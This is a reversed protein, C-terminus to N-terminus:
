LKNVYGFIWFTSSSYFYHFSRSSHHFHSKDSRRGSLRKLRRAASFWFSSCSTTCWLGKVPERPCIGSVSDLVFVSDIILQNKPHHIQIQDVVHALATNQTHRPNFCFPTSTHISISASICIKTNSQLKNINLLSFFNWDNSPETPM